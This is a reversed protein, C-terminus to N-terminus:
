RARDIAEAPSREIVTEIEGMVSAPLPGFSLAEAIDELQEVTRIGPIPINTQGRAWLWGVAGQVLSRRGTTLLDRVADLRQLYEPNGAADKFYNTRPNSTSRIDTDPMTSQANYKGSLLGMALPSRILANLNYEDVIGQMRPADLLVNMAHEVAAFGPREAVCSLNVSFDTSWGYAGVNGAIRAREVEDFIAEARAVSLSNLHLLLLDIRDRGLRTLSAEIATGVTGPGEENGLLQKSEEDIAVGIKTAILADPRGKLARALLREARGAGYAPATDFLTIGSALAAHITRVSEVDDSNAYGVTENGAFMPGGIPWCGMGIPSIEQDLFRMEYRWIDDGASSCTREKVFIFCEAITM